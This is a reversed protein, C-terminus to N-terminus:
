VELVSVRQVSANRDQSPLDGTRLDNAYELGLVHAGPALKLYLLPGANDYTGVSEQSGQKEVRVTLGSLYEGSRQQAFALRLTYHQRQARMAERADSSAGGNLVTDTEVMAEDARAPGALAAGLLAACLLAPWARKARVSPFAHSTPSTHM